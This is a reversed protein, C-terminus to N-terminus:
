RGPLDRYTALRFGASQVAERAAPDVLAALEGAWDYGWRYKERQPDRAAGPHVLIEASRAGSAAIRALARRLGSLTMKGSDDFGECADPHRLGAWSAERALGRAFFQVGLGAPRRSGARPVRIAPIAFRRALRLVVSRVKPLLHLHQHADLHDLALGAERVREIQAAFEAELESSRVRGARRLFAKWTAPFGGREDVLTPVLSPPLLPPDEGVAALHIGVGIAPVDRLAPASEEFAPGVALISTSTVIGTRHAELIGATVGPTLGYDDANVILVGSL